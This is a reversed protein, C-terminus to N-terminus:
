RRGRNLYDTYSGNRYGSEWFWRGNGRDWRTCHGGSEASRSWCREQYRSCRGPGLGFPKKARDLPLTGPPCGEPAPDSRMWAPLNISPYPRPLNLASDIEPVGTGGPRSMGGPRNWGEAGGIGGGSGVGAAGGSPVPVQLGSPNIETAPQSGVYAYTNIGGDLGIPDSQVYRGLQPDMTGSGTTTCTRRKTMGSGRSGSSMASCGWRRLIEDAAAVGFPDAGDWRWVMKNDSARTIVRPTDIQDAYIYHPATTVAGGVTMQKLIDPTDGLYVMEQLVQLNTDYLGILHGAEDYAYYIAGTAVM